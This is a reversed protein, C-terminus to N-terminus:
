EFETQEPLKLKIRNSWQVMFTLLETATQHANKIIVHTDETPTRQLGISKNTHDM